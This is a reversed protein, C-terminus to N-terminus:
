YSRINNFIDLRDILPEGERDVIRESAEKPVKAVKITRPKGTVPDTIKAPEAASSFLKTIATKESSGIDGITELDSEAKAIKKNAKNVATQATKVPRQPVIYSNQQRSWVTRGAGEAARLAAQADKLEKKGEALRKQVKVERAAGAGYIERQTKPSVMHAAAVEDATLPM